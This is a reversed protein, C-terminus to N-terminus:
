RAVTEAAETVAEASRSFIVDTGTPLNPHTRLYGDVLRGAADRGGLGFAIAAAVAVAGLLLGFALNVIDGAIGMQKIAMTGVFGLVVVRAAVALRDASTVGSARVLGSVFNALYMGIAMVIVGSLVQGGTLTLKEVLGALMTFGLLQSAETIAFTLLAVLALTGAIESPKRAGDQQPNFGLKEPLSDFGIGSLVNAIVGAIMRGIVFSIGVTVSAALLNPFGNLIKGLMATAPATIADLKLAGLAAVLIPLLVFAYVLTGGMGSLKQTGLASGIGLRAALKDAGATVLLSTTIQRLVKAITMGVYFILGAGLLNPLFGLTKNAMTQLPELLGTIGLLGLIGPLFLFWTVAFGIESLPKTLASADGFREPLRVSKFGKQILSRVLNAVFGAVIVLVLAGLARPALGIVSNLMNQLSEGM